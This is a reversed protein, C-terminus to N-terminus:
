KQECDLSLRKFLRTRVGEPLSDDEPLHQYLEVTRQLTNLVVTCNTCDKLHEEIQACIAPSLEGDIYDSFRALYDKCHIYEEM